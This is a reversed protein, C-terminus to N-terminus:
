GVNTTQREYEERLLFFLEFAEQETSTHERIFTQWGKGGDPYTRGYRETVFKHFGDPILEHPHIQIAQHAVGYGCQFGALFAILSSFPHDGGGWYLGPKQRISELQERWTRIPRMRGFYALRRIIWAM